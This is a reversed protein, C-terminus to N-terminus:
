RDPHQQFVTSTLRIARTTNISRHIRRKRCTKRRWIKTTVVRRALKSVRHNPAEPFDSIPWLTMHKPKAKLTGVEEALTAIHEGYEPM